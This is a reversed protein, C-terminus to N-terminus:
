RRRAANDADALSVQGALGHGSQPKLTAQPTAKYKRWGVVEHLRRLYDRVVDYGGTTRYGGSPTDMIAFQQLQAANGSEEAAIAKDSVETRFAALWRHFTGDAGYFPECAKEYAANRENVLAVYATYDADSIFVADVQTKRTKTRILADIRADVSQVARAIAADFAKKQGELEKDLRDVAAKTEEILAVGAEGAGASAELMRTAAQPNKMMWAQMRQAKEMMPMADFQERIKANLADQHDKAAIAANQAEGVKGAFGDDAFCTTPMAPVLKWVAASASQATVSVPIGLTCLAVITASAKWKRITM